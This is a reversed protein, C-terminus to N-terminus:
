PDPQSAPELAGEIAAEDDSILGAGVSRRVLPSAYGYHAVLFNALEAQPLGAAPGDAAPPTVYPVALAEGSDADADDAVPQVPPVPAQALVVEPAAGPGPNVGRVLMVAAFAVGAAVALGGLSRLVAVRRPLQAQVGRFPERAIAASVRAAVQRAAPVDGDSRLVAGILSYRSLAGRLEDDRELRKLLLASEPDPLEGDLFASLQEKIRDTM